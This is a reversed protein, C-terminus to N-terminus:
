SSWRTTPKGSTKEVRAEKRAGVLGREHAYLCNMAKEISKFLYPFNRMPPVNVFKYKTVQKNKKGVTAVSELCADFGYQQLYLNADTVTKINSWNNNM